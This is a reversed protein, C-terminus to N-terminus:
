NNGECMSELEFIQGKDHTQIPPYPGRGYPPHQPDPRYPPYLGSGRVPGRRARLPTPDTGGGGKRYLDSGRGEVLSTRVWWGGRLPTRVGGISWFRVRLVRCSLHTCGRRTLDTGGYLHSGYGGYSDGFIPFVQFNKHCCSIFYYNSWLLHLTITPAKTVQAM